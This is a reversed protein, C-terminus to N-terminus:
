FFKEHAGMKKNSAGGGPNVRCLTCDKHAQHLIRGPMLDAGCAGRGQQGRM